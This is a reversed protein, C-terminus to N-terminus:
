ERVPSSRTPNSFRFQVEFRPENSITPTPTPRVKSDPKPYQDPDPRPRTKPATPTPAMSPTPGGDHRGADLGHTAPIQPTFFVRARSPSRSGPSAGTTPLAKHPSGDKRPDMVWSALLWAGSSTNAYDAIRAIPRSTNRRVYGFLTDTRRRQKPEKLIMHFRLVFQVQEVLWCNTPTPYITPPYTLPLGVIM